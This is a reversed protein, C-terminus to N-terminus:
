AHHHEEQHHDEFMPLDREVEKNKLFKQRNIMAQTYVMGHSGDAVVKLEGWTEWGLKLLSNIEAELEQPIGKYSLIKFEVPTFDSM